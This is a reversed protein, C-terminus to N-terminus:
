NFIKHQCIYQRIGSDFDRSLSAKMRNTDKEMLLVLEFMFFIIYYGSLIM